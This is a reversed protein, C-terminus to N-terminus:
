QRPTIPRPAAECRVCHGALGDEARYLRHHDSHLYSDPSTIIAIVSGIDGPGLPNASYRGCLAGSSRVGLDYDDDFQGCERSGRNDGTYADDRLGCRDRESILISPHLTFSAVTVIRGDACWNADPLPNHAAVPLTYLGLLLAPLHPKM